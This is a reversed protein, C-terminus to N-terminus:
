GWEVELPVISGKKRGGEQKKHQRIRKEGVRKCGKGM